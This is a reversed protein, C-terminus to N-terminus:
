LKGRDFFFEIDVAGLPVAGGRGQPAPKPPRSPTVNVGLMLSLPM